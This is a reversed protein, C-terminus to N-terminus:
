RARRTGDTAPANADPQSGGLMRQGVLAAIGAMMGSVFGVHAHKMLTVRDHRREMEQLQEPAVNRNFMEREYLEIIQTPTLKDKAAAAEVAKISEDRAAVLNSPVINATSLTSLAAGIGGGALATV